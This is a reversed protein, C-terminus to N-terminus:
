FSFQDPQLFYIILAFSILFIAINLPRRKITLILEKTERNNRFHCFSLFNIIMATIPLGIFIVPMLYNLVAHNDIFAFFRRVQDIVQSQIGLEIKLVITIAFVIPLLLLWLGAKSSKKYSLLPIKLDRPQMIKEPEPIKMRNLRAEIDENKM